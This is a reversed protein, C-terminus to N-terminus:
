SRDGGATRALQAHNLEDVSLDDDRHLTRVVRGQQLVLVRHALRVLEDSDTSAVVVGAGRAAAEDIIRHVDVRAGVDVGQTPEDLVLVRPDLRLSRGLLVKQQNGGSLSGIVAEPGTTVVGLREIWGATEAAEARRRIRGFSVFRRLGAITLNERVNMAAFVGAAQRERPV